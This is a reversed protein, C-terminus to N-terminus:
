RAGPYNRGRLEFVIVGDFDDEPDAYLGLGFFGVTVGLGMNHVTGPRATGERWADGAVYRAWPVVRGLLGLRVSTPLYYSTRVWWMNDGFRGLRDITPLSGLGGLARWRQRPASSGLPGQARADLVLSQAGFTPIELRARGGLLRYTFDGVLEADAAELGAELNFPYRGAVALDLGTTARLFASEGMDIPANAQFGLHDSFLSFPDRNELSRAQEWGAVLEQSWRFGTGIAVRAGFLAFSADYYNRVDVASILSTISNAVDGAIWEDNSRVTRGGAM